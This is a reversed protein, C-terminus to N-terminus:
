CRVHRRRDREDDKVPVARPKVARWSWAEESEALNDSKRSDRLPRPEQKPDDEYRM